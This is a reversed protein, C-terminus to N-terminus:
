ATLGWVVAAALWLFSAFTLKVVVYKHCRKM